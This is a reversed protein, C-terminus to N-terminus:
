FRNIVFTKHDDSISIVIYLNMNTLNKYEMLCYDGNIKLGSFDHTNENFLGKYELSLNELLWKKESKYEEVKMFCSKCCLLKNESFGLDDLFFHLRPNFASYFNKKESTSTPSNEPCYCCYILNEDRAIKKALTPTFCPRKIQEM